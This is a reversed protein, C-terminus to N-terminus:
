DNEPFFEQENPALVNWEKENAVDRGCRCIYRIEDEDDLRYPLMEEGCNRCKRRPVIITDTAVGRAMNDLDYPRISDEGNQNKVLALCFRFRMGDTGKWLTKGDKTKTTVMVTCNEPMPMMQRISFKQEEGYKERIAKLLKKKSKKM